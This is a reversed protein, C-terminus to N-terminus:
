AMHPTLSVTGHPVRNSEVAIPRVYGAARIMHIHTYIYIYIYVHTMSFIYIYIYMSHTYIYICM